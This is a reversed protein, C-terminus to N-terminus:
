QSALNLPMSRPEAQPQGHGVTKRGLCFCGLCQGAQTAETERSTTIQEVLVADEYEVAGAANFMGKLEFRSVVVCRDSCRFRTWLGLTDLKPLAIPAYSSPVSQM